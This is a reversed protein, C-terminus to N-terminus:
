DIDDEQDHQDEEEEEGLAENSDGADERPAQKAHAKSLTRTWLGPKRVNQKRHGLPLNEISGKKRFSSIEQAPHPPEYLSPRFPSPKELPQSPHSTVSLGGTSCVQDTSLGAAYLRPSTEDLSSPSPVLKFGLAETNSFILTEHSNDAGPSPPLHGTTPGRGARPTRPPSYTEDDSCGSQKGHVM